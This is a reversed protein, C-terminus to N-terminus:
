MCGFGLLGYARAQDRPSDSFAALNLNELNRIQESQAKRIRLDPWRCPRRQKLHELEGQKKLMAVQDLILRRRLHDPVWDEGHARLQQLRDEQGAM